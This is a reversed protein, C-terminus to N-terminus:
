LLDKRMVAKLRRRRESMAPEDEAATWRSLLQLGAYLAVVIVSLLFWLGLGIALRSFWAFAMM